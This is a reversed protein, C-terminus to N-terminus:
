KQRAHVALWFGAGVALFAIAWALPPVIRLPLSLGAASWDSSLGLAFAATTLVTPLVMRAASTTARLGWLRGNAAGAVVAGVIGILNMTISWIPSYHEPATAAHVDRYVAALAYAIAIGTLPGLPALWPNPLADVPGNDVAEPVPPPWASGDHDTASDEGRDPEIDPRM